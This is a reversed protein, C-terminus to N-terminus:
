QKILSFSVEEGKSNQLIMLYNGSPLSPEINFQEKHKGADRFQNKILTQALKGQMDMLQVTIEAKEKLYYELKAESNFPNPYVLTENSFSENSIGLVYVPNYQVVVFNTDASGDEAHFGSVIVKGDSLLNM